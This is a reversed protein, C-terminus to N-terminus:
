DAHLAVIPDVRTARLAPVLSALLAVGSMLAAVSVYTLPDNPRIDFLFNQIAEEALLAVTLASGLGLALGFTLQWAGQSLVMTLISRTDAGLAM